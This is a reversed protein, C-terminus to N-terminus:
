ALFLRLAGALSVLVMVARMRQRSWRALLREGLLGGLFMPAALVAFAGWHVPLRLAPIVILGLLSTVLCVLNKIRASQDFEWATSLVFVALVLTGFSAGFVGAYISVLFIGALRYGPPPPSASADDLRSHRLRRLVPEGVLLLAAGLVFWPAATAFVANGVRALLFIGTACGSAACAFLALHERHGLLRPIGRAYSFPVAMLNTANAMLPNGLIASLTLFSLLSGGAAATNLLGAAFGACILATTDLWTM